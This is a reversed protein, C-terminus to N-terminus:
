LKQLEKTVEIYRENLVQLEDKSLTVDSLQGIIRAKELELLMKAQNSDKKTLNSKQVNVISNNIEFYEKYGCDVREIKGNEFLLLSNTVEGLLYKDHSVVIVTGNYDKIASELQEITALDLHNTPEDLILVDIDDLTILILTAKMRQGLSLTKIKKSLMNAKLDIQALATRARTQKVKDYKKLIELLTANENVIEIHQGLYGISIKNNIYLEGCSPTDLGLIMKLLTTKGSGNAGVLGIKDSCKIYFDSNSFVTNDGFNKNLNKASVIMQSKNTRALNDDFNFYLTEQEKPKVVDNNKLKELQKIKSKVQKDRKKVKARNKEKLGFKYGHELGATKSERHGKQSWQRFKDILADIRQEEKKQNEYELLATRYRHEKERKYASYNGYFKTTTYDEIELISTAVMDLFHRDHSVVFIIGNFRKINEILWDIGRTDM